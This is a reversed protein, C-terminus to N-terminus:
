IRFGYIYAIVFCVKYKNAKTESIAQAVATEAAETSATSFDTSSVAMKISKIPWSLLIAVTQIYVSQLEAEQSIQSSLCVDPITM